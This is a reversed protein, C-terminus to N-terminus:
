RCDTGARALSGQRRRPSRPCRWRHRTLISPPFSVVFESGHGLGASRAEVRGGHLTVLGKVLGLGIGLGGETRDIASTVQSFMSFLEPITEPSLGIGNDQVSLTLGNEGATASLVIRGGADTYKAANTLLNGLIQSMRLPDADLRVSTDPLRTILSHNKAELLPRATETAADIVSQLDIFDKKLELQGRTIRSVDLLDDLLLAMHHVQRAIVDRGWRRQREDAAPLDLIRV